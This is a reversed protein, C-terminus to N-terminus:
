ELPCCTLVTFVRAPATLTYESKPGKWGDRTTSGVTMLTGTPAICDPDRGAGCVKTVVEGQGCYVHVGFTGARDHCTGFKPKVSKCGSQDAGETGPAHIKGQLNCKKMADIDTRLTALNGNTADIRSQLAAWSAETALNGSATREQAYAAPALLCLALLPLTKM